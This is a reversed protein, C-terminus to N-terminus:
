LNPPDLNLRGTAEVRAEEEPAIDSSVQAVGGSYNALHGKRAAINIMVMGAVIGFVLGATASGLALSSGDQWGLANYAEEMGAATGHGGPWSVEFITSFLPTTGFLPTFLFFTLLAPVAVLAFSSFFSYFVHPAAERAADKPSPLDAGLLMPAFVITILLGALGSWTTVMGEPALGLAHPGLILGVIGGLLAAPIFLRRLPPILARLLVGVLLLVGLASVSVLLSGLMDGDVPTLDPM